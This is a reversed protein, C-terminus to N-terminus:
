PQRSVASFQVASMDPVVMRLERMASGKPIGTLQLRSFGTTGPTKNYTTVIPVTAGVAHTAFFRTLQSDIKVATAASARGAGARGRPTALGLVLVLTVLFVNRLTTTM